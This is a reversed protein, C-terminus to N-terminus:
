YLEFELHNETLIWKIGKSVVDSEESGLALNSSM